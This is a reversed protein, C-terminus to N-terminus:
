RVYIVCSITYMKHRIITIYKEKKANCYATTMASSDKKQALKKQQSEALGISGKSERSWVNQSLRVNSITHSVRLCLVTPKVVRYYNWTQRSQEADVM